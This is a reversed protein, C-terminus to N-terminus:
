KKKPLSEKYLGLIHFIAEGGEGWKGSQLEVGKLTNYFFQESEVVYKPPRAELAKLLYPFRRCPISQFINVLEKGYEFCRDREDDTLIGEDIIGDLSRNRTFGRVSKLGEIVKNISKKVEESTVETLIFEIREVSFQRELPIIVDSMPGSGRLEMRISSQLLGHVENVVDSLSCQQDSVSVRNQLDMLSSPMVYPDLKVSIKVRNRSKRYSPPLYTASQNFDVNFYSVVDTAFNLQQAGVLNFRGSMGDKREKLFPEIRELCNRVEEVKPLYEGDVDVGTHIGGSNDECVTDSPSSFFLLFSDFLPLISNYFM